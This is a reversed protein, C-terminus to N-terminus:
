DGILFTMKSYIGKSKNGSTSEFFTTWLGSDQVEVKIGGNWTTHGGAGQGLADALVCKIDSETSFTMWAEGIDCKGCGPRWNKSGDFSGSKDIIKISIKTVCRQDSYAKLARVTPRWPTYVNNSVRYIRKTSKKAEM